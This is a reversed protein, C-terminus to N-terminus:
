GSHYSHVFTYPIANSCHLVLYKQITATFYLSCVPAATGTDSVLQAMLNNLFNLHYQAVATIESGLVL